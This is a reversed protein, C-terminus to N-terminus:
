RSRPRPRGASCCGRPWCRPRPEDGATPEEAPPIGVAAVESPPQRAEQAKEKAKAEDAAVAAPDLPVDEVMSDFKGARLAIFMAKHQEQM